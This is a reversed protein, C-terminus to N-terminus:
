GEGCSRGTDLIGATHVRTFVCPRVSARTALPPPAPRIGGIGASPHRPTCHCGHQPM